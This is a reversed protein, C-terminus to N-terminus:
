CAALRRALWDTSECTFSVPRSAESSDGGTRHRTATTSPSRTATRTSSRSSGAFRGDTPPRLITVGDEVLADHVVRSDATKFWIALALHPRPLSDLDVGPPAEMMAFPVPYSQFAVAPWPFVEPDRRFGLKNQYFDAAAGVDRVFLGVFAPGSLEFNKTM